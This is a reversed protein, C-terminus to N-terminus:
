FNHFAFYCTLRSESKLSTHTSFQRNLVSSINPLQGGKSSESLWRQKRRKCRRRGEIGRGKGCEMHEEGGNRLGKELYKKKIVGRGM